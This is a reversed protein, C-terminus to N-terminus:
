QAHSIKALIFSGETISKYNNLKKQPIRNARSSPRHNLRSGTM